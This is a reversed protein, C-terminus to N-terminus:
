DSGVPCTHAARPCIGKLLVIIYIFLYIFLLCTLMGAYEWFELTGSNSELVKAKRPVLSSLPTNVCIIDGSLRVLKGMMPPQYYSNASAASAWKEPKSGREKRSGKQNISWKKGTRRTVAGGGWLWCLYLTQSQWKWLVPRLPHQSFEPFSLFLSAGMKSSEGGRETEIRKKKGETSAWMPDVDHWGNRWTIVCLLDQALYFLM